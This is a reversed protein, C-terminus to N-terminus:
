QSLLRTPRGTAEPFGYKVNEPVAKNRDPAVGDKKNSDLLNLYGFFKTLDIIPRTAGPM